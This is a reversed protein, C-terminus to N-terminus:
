RQNDPFTEPRKPNPVKDMWEEYKYYIMEPGSEFMTFGIGSTNVIDLWFTGNEVDIFHFDMTIFANGRIFYFMMRYVDTQDTASIDMIPVRDRLATQLIWPGDNLTMDMGYWKGTFLEEYFENGSKTEAGCSVSLLFVLIIWFYRKMMYDKTFFYMM